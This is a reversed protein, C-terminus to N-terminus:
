NLEKRLVEVIRKTSHGDWYPPIAGKKYTGTEIQNIKEAVAEYNYEVLENTGITITCPRETNDRLTLCPIQRFTTEEQIGGSDTLVLEAQSNLSLMELYGLPEILILNKM